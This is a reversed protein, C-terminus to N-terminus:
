IFSTNDLVKNVKREKYETTNPNFILPISIGSAGNRNKEVILEGVVDDREKRNLMLVIDADQELNGSDRLHHLKPMGDGSRMMERNLQSLVLVANNCKGSLAKITRTMKGIRTDNTVGRTSPDCLLQLYDIIVLDVAHKRHEKIVLASIQSSTAMPMYVFTLYDKLSEVVTMANKISADARAHRILHLPTGTVIAIFRDMLRPIAMEVSIFLVRQNYESCNRAISLAMSSKGISPRAALITLTGREMPADEDMTDFGTVVGIGAPRNKKEEYEIIYDNFISPLDKIEENSLKSQLSEIKNLIMGVEDGKKISDSLVRLVSLEKLRRSYESLWIPTLDADLWHKTLPSTLLGMRDLEISVTTLNVPRDNERMLLLIKFAKQNYHTYFDDVTLDTVDIMEPNIVLVGLALAEVVDDYKLDYKM